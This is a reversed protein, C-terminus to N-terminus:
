ACWRSFEVERTLLAELAMAGPQEAEGSAIAFLVAEWIDDELGHAAEDDDRIEELRALCEKVEDVTKFRLKSPATVEKSMCGGDKKLPVYFLSKTNLLSKRHHCFQAGFWQSKDSRM